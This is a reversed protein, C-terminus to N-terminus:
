TRTDFTSTEINKCILNEHSCIPRTNPWWARALTSKSRGAGNEFQGCTFSQQYFITFPEPCELFGLLMLHRSLRGQIMEKPLIKFRSQDQLLLVQLVGLMRALSSGLPQKVSWMPLCIETVSSEHSCSVPRVQPIGVAAPLRSPCLQSSNGEYRRESNPM